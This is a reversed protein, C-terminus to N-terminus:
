TYSVVEWEVDDRDNFYFRQGPEYDGHNFPTFGAAKVKAEVASLDDVVVGVHNLGARMYHTEGKEVPDTTPKYVAIYTDDDGVHYTEGGHIAAGHWRVRWGFVDGLWAATAKPNSVTVNVHELFSTTM